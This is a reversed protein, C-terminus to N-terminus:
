SHWSELLNNTRHILGFVGFVDLSVEGIWYSLFHTSFKKKGFYEVFLKGRSDPQFFKWFHEFVFFDLLV